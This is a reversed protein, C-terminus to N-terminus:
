LKAPNAGIQDLNKTRLRARPWYWQQVYVPPIGRLQIENKTRTKRSVLADRRSTLIGQAPRFCVLLPLGSGRRNTPARRRDYLANGAALHPFNGGPAALARWTASRLQTVTAPNARSFLAVVCRVRM